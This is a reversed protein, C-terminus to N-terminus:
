TCVNLADQAKKCNIQKHVWYFRFFVQMLRDYIDLISLGKM